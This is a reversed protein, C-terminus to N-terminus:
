KYIQNYQDNNAKGLFKPTYWCDSTVTYKNTQANKFMENTMLGAVGNGRFKEETVTRLIHLKSAQENLTFDVYGAVEDDYLASLKGKTGDFRFILKSVDLKAKAAAAVQAM